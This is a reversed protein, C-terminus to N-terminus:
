LALTTPKRCRSKNTACRASTNQRWQSLDSGMDRAKSKVTLWLVYIEMVSTFPAWPLVCDGWLLYSYSPVSTDPQVKHGVTTQKLETKTQTHTRLLLFTWVCQFIHELQELGKRRIKSWFWLVKHLGRPHHCSSSLNCLQAWMLFFVPTLLGM